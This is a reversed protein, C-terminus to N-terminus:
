FRDLDPLLWERRPISIMEIRNKEAPPWIEWSLHNEIDHIYVADRTGQIIGERRGRNYADPKLFGIYNGSYSLISTIIKSNPTDIFRTFSIPYQTDTETKIIESIGVHGNGGHTLDVIFKPRHLVVTSKLKYEAVAM